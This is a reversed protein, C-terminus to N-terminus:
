RGQIEIQGIVESYHKYIYSILDLDKDSLIIETKAKREFHEHTVMDHETIFDDAYMAISCLGIVVHDFRRDLLITDSLRKDRSIEFGQKKLEKKWDM